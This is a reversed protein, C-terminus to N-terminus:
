SRTTNLNKLAAWRDDGPKTECDCESQNRNQGCVPCIGKCDERCTRRMPLALLVQERLIEELELGGGEYMAIVTAGTDLAEEKEEGMLPAPYYFLDMEHEIAYPAAELCRDCEAMMRVSVRGQVRIVQTEGLLEASGAVHLPTEQRIKADLYDIEGPQFTLDFRLTRTEMERVSLYM